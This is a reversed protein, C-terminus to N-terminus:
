ELMMREPYRPRTDVGREDDHTHEVMDIWPAAITQRRRDFKVKQDEVIGRVNGKM